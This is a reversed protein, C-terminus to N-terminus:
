EDYETGKPVIKIIHDISWGVEVWKDKQKEYVYIWEINRDHHLQLMQYELDSISSLGLFRIGNINSYSMITYKQSFHQKIIFIDVESDLMDGIRNESIFPFAKKMKEFEIDCIDEEVCDEHCPSGKYQVLKEDDQFNNKCIKCKM